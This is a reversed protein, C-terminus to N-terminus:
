LGANYWYREIEKIAELVANRMNKIELDKSERIENIEKNKDEFDAEMQNFDNEIEGLIKDAIAKLDAINQKYSNIDM